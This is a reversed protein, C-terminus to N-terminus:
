KSMLSPNIWTGGTSYILSKSIKYLDEYNGGLQDKLFDLYLRRNTKLKWFGDPKEAFRNIQTPASYLRRNTGLFKLPTRGKSCRAIANM